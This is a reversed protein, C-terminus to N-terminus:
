VDFERSEVERKRAYFASKRKGTRQEWLREREQPDTIQLLIDRILDRERAKQEERSLTAVV